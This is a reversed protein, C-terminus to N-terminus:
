EVVWITLDRCRRILRDSVHHGFLKHWGHFAHRGVVITDCHNAKAANIIGQVMEQPHACMGHDCRICEAPLGTQALLKTAQEFLPEAKRRQDRVWDEQLAHIEAEEAKGEVPNEAGGFELLDPPLPPLMHWLDVTVGSRDGMMSGVYGVAKLSAESDDIAVLFTHKTGSM